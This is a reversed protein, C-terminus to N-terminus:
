TLRATSLLLFCPTSSLAVFHALAPSRESNCSQQCDMSATFLAPGHCQLPKSSLHSFQHIITKCYSLWCSLVLWWADEEAFLHSSILSPTVTHALFCSKVMTRLWFSSDRKTGQGRRGAKGLGSGTMTKCQTLRTTGPGDLRFEWVECGEM